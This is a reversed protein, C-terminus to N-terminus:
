IRRTIILWGGIGNLATYAIYGLVATRSGQAAFLLAALLVLFEVVLSFRGGLMHYFWPMRGLLPHGSQRVAQHLAFNAIGFLFVFIIAM